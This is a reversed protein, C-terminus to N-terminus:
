KRHLFGHLQDDLDQTLGHIACGQGGLFQLKRSDGMVSVLVLHAIAQSGSYSEVAKSPRSHHMAGSDSSM